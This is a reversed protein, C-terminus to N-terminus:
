TFVGKNDRNSCTVTVNEKQKRARVDEERKNTTSWLSLPKGILTRNQERVGDRNRKKRGGQSGERRRKERSDKQEENTGRSM